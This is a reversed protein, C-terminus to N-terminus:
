QGPAPLAKDNACKALSLQKFSHIMTIRGNDPDTMVDMCACAHGYNGNTAAYDGASIDGIQDMGEAEFGGQTMITWSMESDTLWWNGPTPNELWGCRKEAQAISAALLLTAGAVAFVALRKM